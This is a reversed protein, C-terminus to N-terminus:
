TLSPYSTVHASLVHPRTVMFLGPLKALVITTYNTAYMRCVEYGAAGQLVFSPLCTLCLSTNGIKLGSLVVNLKLQICSDHLPTALFKRCSPPFIKLPRAFRPKLVCPVRLTGLARDAFKPTWFIFPSPRHCWGLVNIQELYLKYIIFYGGNLSIKSNTVGSGM